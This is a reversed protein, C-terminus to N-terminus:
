PRAPLAAGTVRVDVRELGRPSDPVLAVELMALYLTTTGFAGEGFALNAYVKGRAAFARVLPVGTWGGVFVISEDLALGATTDFIVLLNGAADFALGDGFVGVAAQITEPPEMVADGGLPIRYLGAVPATLEVAGDACFIATNETTLWLAGDPGVVLGNPGGDTAPDFAVRARVAGTTPDVAYVKGTCTDSLFVTGDPGVAVDNPSAFPEAGDHDQLVAVDHGSVKLLAKAGADAVYLTGLPDYALGLPHQLPAGTTPFATVGGDPHVEFLGASDGGYAMMLTGSPSFALDETSGTAGVAALFAEVEAFPASALTTGPTAMVKLTAGADAADTADTTAAHITNVIPLPGLLWDCRAVGAHDTTVQTPSAAGGGTVTLTLAIGTAPRGDDWHAGLALDALTTGAAAAEPSPAFTVVLTRTPVDDACAALAAVGLAVFILRPSIPDM